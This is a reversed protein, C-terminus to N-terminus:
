RATSSVRWALQVRDLRVQGAPIVPRGEGLLHGAQGGVPAHGPQAGERQGGLDAVPAPEGPGALEHPEAAQHGALIGAALPGGSAVEGLGAVGVQAGLQDLRGPGVLVPWTDAGLDGAALWPRSGCTIARAQAAWSRRHPRKRRRAARLVELFTTTAAM